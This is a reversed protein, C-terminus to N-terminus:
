VETNLLAEEFSHTFDEKHQEKQDDRNQQREQGQQQERNFTREQGTFQQSIEVREIQINQSSFAQKLGNLHSEMMDKAVTTSTLIRAIIASDKQILEVRLAGLHEPNLKIFLKQTGGNKIFQSKSLISEFQDILQEASVQKGSHNVMLTLQEPKSLQQYQIFGPHITETKHLVKSINELNEFGASVTSNKRNMEQVVSSFAKHLFEERNSTDASALKMELKENINKMFERLKMQDGLSDQHAALLEYLKLAKLTQGFEKNPEFDQLLVLNGYLSNLVQLLEASSLGIQEEIMRMIEDISQYATKELLESGNELELIDNIQLFQILGALEESSLEDKEEGETLGELAVPPNNTLNAFLASFGNTGKGSLVPEAERPILTSIAGLGGIEM